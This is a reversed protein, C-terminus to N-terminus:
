GGSFLLDRHITFEPQSSPDNHIRQFLEKYEVNDHLSQRLKERFDFNPISLSLFQNTSPSSIRSLADVVINAFSSKYQISYDYGLLKYLCQQKKPTQIVQAMLDKLSHHDTLSIFHHGFLYHQWKRVAVIIAHLERVYASARQLRPCFLKSFFAIPHSCRILVAGMAQASADSEVVFPVTFDPTALVPTSTMLQKLLNFAQQANPNWGFQDKRLLTTM